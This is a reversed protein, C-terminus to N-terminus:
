RQKSRSVALDSAYAATLTAKVAPTAARAQATMGSLAAYQGAHSAYAASFPVTAVPAHTTACSHPWPAKLSLAATCSATPYARCLANSTGYKLQCRECATCWALVLWMSSPSVCTGMRSVSASPAAVSLAFSTIPSPGKATSFRSPTSKKPHGIYRSKPELPPGTRPLVLWKQGHAPSCFCCASKGPLHFRLTSCDSTPTSAVTAASPAHAAWAPEAHGTRASYAPGYMNVLRHSTSYVHSCCVSVSTGCKSSLFQLKTLPANMVMSRGYPAVSSKRCWLIPEVCTACWTSLAM